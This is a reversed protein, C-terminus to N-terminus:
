APRECRRRAGGRLRGARDAGRDRRRRRHDRRRRRRRAGGGDGQGRQHRARVRVPRLAQVPVGGLRRHRHQRRAQHVRPAGRGRHARPQRDHCDVIIAAGGIGYGEYRIEEYNVGELNGTAKDINRKVTDAPMNAAKAKEVALRLRPNASPDGGGNRAAVMIERILARGSRAASKTRAARATSSTPGSPIVPWPHRTQAAANPIAIGHSKVEDRWSRTAHGIRESIALCPSMSHKRSGASALRWPRIVPAVPVPLVTVSCVSASFKDRMPTGTKMASTLPSRVPM